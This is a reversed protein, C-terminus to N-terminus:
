SFHAEIILQTESAPVEFPTMESHMTATFISNTLSTARLQDIRGAVNIEFTAVTFFNLGLCTTAAGLAISDRAPRSFTAAIRRGDFVGFVIDLRQFFLDASNLLISPLTCRFVSCRTYAHIVVCVIPSLTEWALM